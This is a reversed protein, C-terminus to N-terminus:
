LRIRLKTRFWVRYTAAVNLASVMAAMAAQWYSGDAIQQSAESAMWLAFLPSM